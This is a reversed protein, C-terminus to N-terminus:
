KGIRWVPLSPKRIVPVKPHIQVLTHRTSVTHLRQVTPCVEAHGLASVVFRWETTLTTFGHSFWLSKLHRTFSTTLLLAM